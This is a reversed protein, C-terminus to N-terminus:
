FCDNLEMPLVHLKRVREFIEDRTIEGDEYRDFARIFEMYPKAYKQLIRRKLRPRKELAVLLSAWCAVSNDIHFHLDERHFDFYLAQKQETVLEFASNLRVSFKIISTKWERNATEIAEDRWARLALGAVVVTGLSVFVAVVSVIVSWYAWKASEFAAAMTGVAVSDM